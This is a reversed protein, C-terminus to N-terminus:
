YNWPFEVGTEEAIGKLASYVKEGLDFGEKRRKETMEFEKEGHIYIRKEGEAKSGDRLEQLQQTLNRKFEAPDVFNEVKFAMFFHGINPPLPKGDKKAYVHTGWAAGALPGCFIDVWLALGYGKYGSFLEGAGGLPLIGGGKRALMNQLVRGADTTVKGNEDIAWGEPIPKGLRNYVELKGRPVVSTAMDLVFPYGKDTPAAVAIPNTGFMLDKGFTPCVLPAANTMSIGVMNYELAMMAYYGAIGYHNSNHVTVMGIGTEKAKKLAVEMGFLGAVQGLGNKGDVNASFPSERVIEPTIDPMMLGDTIGDVYRKLRAVGHSDIGRLNAQVLNDATTRADKEPVGKAIFIKTCFDFLEDHKVIYSM